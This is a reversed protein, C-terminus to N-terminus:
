AESLKEEHDQVGKWEIALMGARRIIISALKNKIDTLGKDHGTIKILDSLALIATKLVLIHEDLQAKMARHDGQQTDPSELM